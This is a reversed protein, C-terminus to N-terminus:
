IHQYINILTDLSAQKSYDKRAIEAIAKRDFTKGLFQSEMMDGIVEPDNPAMIGFGHKVVYESYDGVGKSIIVPLGALLYEPLKTPSAVNNTPIDDRIMLGADSANLYDNIEDHRSFKVLVRSADVKYEEMLKKGMDVDPTICIFYLDPFRQMLKGTLEFIFEKMHWHCDLKGTYILVFKDEINLSKRIANRKTEDPFFSADDAAGPVVLLKEAYQNKAKEIIYEKLKCSVCLTRYSIGIIKLQSELIGEYVARIAPDKVDDITKYDMSNIYEEAPAGRLDFVVKTGPIFMRLIRLAKYNNVSRTQVIIDKGGLYPIIARCFLYSALMFGSIGTKDNGRLVLVQHIKGPVKTRAYAVKEKRLKNSKLLYSVPTTIFLDFVVQKRGLVELWNIVQSDKVTQYLQDSIYLM